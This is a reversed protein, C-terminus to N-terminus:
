YETFLPQSTYFVPEAIMETNYHWHSDAPAHAFPQLLDM